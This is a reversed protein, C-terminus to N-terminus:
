VTVVVVVTADVVAVVVVAVTAVVVMVLLPGFYNRLLPPPPSPPPRPCPPAEPLATASKNSSRTLLHGRSKSSHMTHTHIYTKTHMNKYTHNRELFIISRDM